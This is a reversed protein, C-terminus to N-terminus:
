KINGGTRKAYGRARLQEARCVNCSIIGDPVNLPCVRGECYPESLISAMELIENDYKKPIFLKSQEPTLVIEAEIGNMTIKVKDM